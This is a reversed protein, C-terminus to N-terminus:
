NASAREVSDIVLVDVPGKTSQLKLGLQEQMAAFINGYLDPGPATSAGGPMAPPPAPPGALAEDATVLLEVDFTGTFGTKDIVTRGLVNSLVRVFETMSVKGGKMRAGSSSFMVRVRGCPIAQGPLPPSPPAEPDPSICSGEKPEPLKAGRKAMTLEYVPLERTEHHVRLKFRDELLTQMLLHMQGSNPNGEAKAAIDYHASNIWAPGGSIQFPKVDYANQIFYRLLVKEAMLRGGPLVRVVGLDENPGLQSTPKISAVEFRTAAATSQARVATANVTGVIIPVTVVVIAAFFLGAKRAFSLRVSRRNQMIAEIRRKLNSGTVGCACVLPSETYLKCIKLISEAYVRPESGLYLAEEDCAREREDVIRWGIWWVLPHFWFVTEVFMQVTAILNDRHRVHCLEHAIVAELQSPTLSLFISEPLLLVPRFVGFVGPELVSPSSMTPVPLRLPILSGTRVVAHIRRWRVWWSCAIGLFGIAWVALLIAPMRDFVSPRAPLTATSITPVPFPESLQDVVISVNYPTTNPAPRWHVQGGLAVLASFPILFKLSAALWMWCRVRAHNRRLALTLLGPVAGFLTSQWLHNALPSLYTLNM